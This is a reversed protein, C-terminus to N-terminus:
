NRRRGFRAQGGALLGSVVFMPWLTAGADPLADATHSTIWQGDETYTAVLQGGVFSDETLNAPSGSVRATGGINNFYDAFFSGSVINGQSDVFLHMTNGKANLIVSADPTVVVPGGVLDLLAIQGDDLASDQVRLTCSFLSSSNGQWTYNFVARSLFPTLCLSGLVLLFKM